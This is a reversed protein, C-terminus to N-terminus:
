LRFAYPRVAILILVIFNLFVNEYGGLLDIKPDGFFKECYMHLTAFVRAKIKIFM